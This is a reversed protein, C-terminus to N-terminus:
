VVTSLAITFVDIIAELESRVLIVIDPTGLASRPQSQPWCVM